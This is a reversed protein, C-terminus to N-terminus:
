KDIDLYDILRRTRKLHRLRKLAKAEIQRIRQPTVKFHKGIEEFTLIRSGNLSFRM